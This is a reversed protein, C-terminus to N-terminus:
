SLTVKRDRDLEKAARAYWDHVRMVGPGCGIEPNSRYKAKLAALSQAASAEADALGDDVATAAKRAKAKQPLVIRILNAKVWEVRELHAARADDVSEANFLTVPKGRYARAVPDAATSTTMESPIHLQHLAVDLLTDIDDPDIGYEAALQPFGFVPLVYGHLSGDPNRTIVTWRDVGDRDTHEIVNVIVREVAPM